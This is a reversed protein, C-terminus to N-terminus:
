KERKNKQKMIWKKWKEKIKKEKKEMKLKPSRKYESNRVRLNNKM